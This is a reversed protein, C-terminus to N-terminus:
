RMRGNREAIITLRGNRELVAYRIQELRQVGHLERAAELIDDKDVREKDCVPRRLEGNEVVILPVGELLKEMTKSRQKWVSMGVNMMLFTLILIFARTFSHDDQVMAQQTTESVVLLLLLDFTTADSLTRKGSLRFVLLLFIYIAVVGLVADM